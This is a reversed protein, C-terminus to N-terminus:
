EIVRDATAFLTEPIMLGLAKATKLNIILEFKVPAQVPLDSPREGKLIRDVYAAAKRYQDNFDPGYSILGGGIAFFGYPYMMPLRHQVALDFLIERNVGMLGSPQVIIGGGPKRAFAEVQHVIEDASTVRTASVNVKLLPAASEITRVYGDWNSNVPDYLVMVHTTSPAVEKLISLWKGAISNELSSFGTINGGPRAFSEVFGSAVPDAVNAFVIPITRTLQKVIKTFPTGTAVIVDPARAVLEEASARLVSEGGARGYRDFQLNHGVTWGLKQLEQLFAPISQEETETGLWGIRRVREGQQARAVLPWAAGAGLGAIFERRRM